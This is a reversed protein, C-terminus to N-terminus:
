VCCSCWVFCHLIFARVNVCLDIFYMCLRMSTYVCVDNRRAEPAASSGSGSGTTSTQSGATVRSNPNPTLTTTPVSSLDLNTGLHTQPSLPSDLKGCVQVGLWVKCWSHADLQADLGMYSFIQCGFWVDRACIVKRKASAQDVDASESSRKRAAIMRACIYRLIVWAYTILICKVWQSVGSPFCVCLGVSCGTIIWFLVCNRAQAPALRPKAKPQPPSVAHRYSTRKLPHHDRNSQRSKAAPNLDLDFSSLHTVVDTM